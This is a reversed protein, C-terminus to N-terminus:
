GDRWAVRDGEVVCRGTRVLLEIGVLMRETVKAGARQIGFVRATERVLDDRTTSLSRSLVWAAAAAIEEPAALEVARPEGKDSPGRFTTWADPDQDPRWVFEGRLVATKTLTRLQDLIRGRLRDTMRMAGFAAAVRRALEDVHVPAEVALVDLMRARLDPAGASEHIAEPGLASPAVTAKVYPTVPTMQVSSRSSAGSGPAASAPGGTAAVEQLLEPPRAAVAPRPAGSMSARVGEELARRIAGELREVERARHFWWDTSWVRHLRWGLGELVEQRLRDRDRATPASHYSAGDCEIGLLYVGPQEPHVVALDLRYSGCGVQCDVVHGKATLAEHVEREFDSEFDGSRLLPRQQASSSRESVYRLFAKLHRSGVASTRSLDIQDHTLTSFVRLKLRARTIAVNLRREGGSRNLPGFNMWVRGAEDPGYGVSFLIEDREDGQVNELNKVFVPEALGTAFHAEVDADRARAEDLLDQILGQQAQSFTVVGFSREGPATARLTAVLHDILAQAEVRNTRTRNKDYIGGPVGHWEVGLDAVRGRAAPFVNLRGEYYHQNSFDILTEHRSRYHWGLMQQPLGAAVAEDLISELEEVDNDDVPADEAASRQFFATPPLQRSDGVVVVQRGRAIAGIADHTCIQSAEDFVVLDFSRGGAPLYQAVSLPSMLFCPKLRTSLNPLEGLLKRIPMHRSKKRLERQLKGTESTESVASDIQPLRAELSAAARLRGLALHEQDVARFREVLRHHNPGDFGRLAPEGDRVVAVWAQLFARETCAILDDARLAGSRHAEILPTVGWQAFIATQRQYLCFSRLTGLGQLWRSLLGHAGQLYGPAAEDPWVGRHPAIRSTVGHVHRRLVGLAESLARSQEAVARRREPSLAPDTLAVVQDLPASSSARYRRLAAQFADARMLVPTLEEPTAGTWAGGLANVLAAREREVEGATSLVARALTLDTAIQRNQPLPGSTMAKLRSRAGWLFIWAFLFFAEAWRKFLAELPELEIRYLSEQWRSALRQRWESLTRLQGTWTQIRGRIQAGPADEILVRPLAGGAAAAGLQAMEDLGVAASTPPLGLHAALRRGADDVMSIARLAGELEQRLAQEAQASWEMLAVDRYPHASVPDVERAAVAYAGAAELLARFQTDTAAAIGALSVPVQPASAHPAGELALLRANGKYFSKGLPRPAHLARTYANLQARIRALETSREEWPPPPTRASRALSSGLAEIVQKKQAKHSHLELCFDGLGARELRRKVVELAAMKESVFLVTRGEAIAAAILNTITQSKGTGPPGQLVFSRGALASVIAAMQTSDSDLVLPLRAPPVADDLTGAEAAPAANPFATQAGSAIHRVVSSKLIAAANDELDRWMLFKTFAFLGLHVEEVVEWRPMRHVAQRVARFMAPIDRGHEDSELSTLASLDVDFDGRLKEILAVNPMSEAPLGRLRIRRTMRQYEVAVPVLLLPAYRAVDSAPSEYWRLLGIAAFLTNAGGEEMDTRTTRDLHVSRIRVEQEPLPSHLIGKKLDERRRADLDAEDSRTKVLRADRADRADDAPRPLVDFVKEGALADEFAAADPVDLPLAGKADPRFNLLKNRLSLDLLRDRWQKLRATVPDVPLPVLSHSSPLAPLQAAELLLTRAAASTAGPASVTVAAPPPGPVPAAVDRLPLPRYRDLRAVRVDLAFVLQEDGRLFGSAVERARIFPPSPSAITTSSDFFLLQDLATSTRLRAADEVVGEPFREDVLWVGPFAHGRAVVLLPSLGMQELCSAALLTMDLCTALQEGLIQDPLRVKQGSAEFSAPPEAYSVGFQQLTEYLAEVMATVRAPSRSQYGDLAMNGTAAGLRDRVHRLLVAVVPHNPTVFMALLASPARSGPWHNYPLVEIAGSGESLVDDGASLQWKIQAREAETVGRLRGPPLQIDVIGLDVSEGGHVLPVRVRTPKGLGPALEIALMAGELPGPSGNAVRVSSVIPVGAQELAFTLTPAYELDVTINTTSM